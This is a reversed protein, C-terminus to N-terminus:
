IPRNGLIGLNRFEQIGLNFGYNDTFIQTGYKKDCKANRAKSKPNVTQTLPKAGKMM